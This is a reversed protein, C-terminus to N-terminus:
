AHRTFSGGGDIQLAQRGLHGCQDLPQLLLGLGVRLLQGPALALDRQGSDLDVLEVELERPELAPLEVGLGLRHRGGLPQQEGVGQGLILGAQLRLEGLQLAAQGLGGLRRLCRAGLRTALCQGLVQFADLVAVLGLVGGARVGVAAPRHLADALVDALLQVDDGRLEEHVPVDVALPGALAALLQALLGGLRVHDAAADRGGAQHRVRQDAAEDIVQRVVPLRRDVRARAHV